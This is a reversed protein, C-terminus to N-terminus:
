GERLRREFERTAERSLWERTQQAGSSRKEALDMKERINSQITARCPDCTYNQPLTKARYRGRWISTPQQCEVCVRTVRVWGRPGAM